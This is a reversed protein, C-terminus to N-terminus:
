MEFIYNFFKVKIAAKQKSSIKLSFFLEQNRNNNNFYFTSTRTPHPILLTFGKMANENGKIIGLRICADIYM